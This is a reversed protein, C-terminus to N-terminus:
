GGGWEGAGVGRGSEQRVVRSAEVDTGLPAAVLGVEVAVDGVGRGRPREDEEAHDDVARQEEKRPARAGRKKCQHPLFPNQQVVHGVHNQVQPVLDQPAVEPM